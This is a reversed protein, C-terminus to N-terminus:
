AGLRQRIFLGIQHIAPRAQPIYPAFVQFVHIQDEWEDLVVETGAERAAAALRRSDDLVIEATGVQVLMPPLGSLDAFLPSALPDMPDADGLYARSAAPMQTPDLWPDEEAKTVMTEGTGALDTWPSLLFTAAPLPDGADRLLTLMALTLGGGASDGGVVLRGPDVGADILWRYVRLADDIAAPFKHEPALRYNPVLVRAGSAKSIRAALARHTKFSGTIYGGGHLYLVTAWRTATPAVVWESPVGGADVRTLTTGRVVPLLGALREMEARRQALSPEEGAGFRGRYWNLGRILLHGV